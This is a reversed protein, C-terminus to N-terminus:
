PDKMTMLQPPIPRLCPESGVNSPSHSLGAAEAGILGRAQSGRYAMPAAQFFFFSGGGLFFSLFCKYLSAKINAESADEQIFNVILLNVLEM